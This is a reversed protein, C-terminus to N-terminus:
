AVMDQLMRREEDTLNPDSHLLRAAGTRISQMEKLAHDNIMTLMDEKRKLIHIQTILFEITKKMAESEAKAELLKDTAELFQDQMHSGWSEVDPGMVAAQAVELAMPAAQVRELEMLKLPQSPPIPISHNNIANLRKRLQKAHRARAAARDAEMMRAEKEARKAQKLREFEKAAEAQRAEREAQDRLKKRRATEARKHTKNRYKKPQEASPSACGTEPPTLTLESLDKYLPRSFKFVDGSTDAGFGFDVQDSTTGDHGSTNLKPSTQSSPASFSMTAQSTQGSSARRSKGIKQAVEEIQQKVTHMKFPDVGDFHNNRADRTRSSSRARKNSSDDSPVDENGSSSRKRCVVSMLASMPDSMM